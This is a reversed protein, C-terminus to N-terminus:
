FQGIEAPTITVPESLFVLGIDNDLTDEAFLPHMRTQSVDVTFGDVGFEEGFFVEMEGQAVVGSLCHAATLVVDSDVLVGTCFVGVGRRVLAVTSEHATDPTNGITQSLDPEECSVRQGNSGDECAAILLLAATAVVSGPLKRHLRM